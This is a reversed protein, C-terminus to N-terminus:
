NACGGELVPESGSSLGSPIPAALGGLCGGGHVVPRHPHSGTRVRCWHRSLNVPHEGKAGARGVSRHRVQGYRQQRHQEQKAGHGGVGFLFVLGLPLDASGLVEGVKQLFFFGFPCRDHDVVRDDPFVIRGLQGLIQAIREIPQLHGVVNHGGGNGAVSGVAVVEEGGHLVTHCLM